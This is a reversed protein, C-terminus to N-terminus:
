GHFLALARMGLEVFSNCVHLRRDLIINRFQARLRAIRMQRHRLTEICEFFLEVFLLLRHAVFLRLVSFRPKRREVLFLGIHSMKRGWLFLLLVRVHRNLLIVLKASDKVLKLLDLVLPLAVVVFAEAADFGLQVEDVLIPVHTVLLFHMIHGVEIRKVATHLVWSM